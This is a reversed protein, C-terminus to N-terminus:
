DYVELKTTKVYNDNIIQSGYVRSSPISAQQIQQANMPVSERQSQPISIRSM